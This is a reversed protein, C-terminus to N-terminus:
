AGTPRFALSANAALYVPRQTSLGKRSLALYTAVFSNRRGEDSPWALYASLFVSMDHWRAENASLRKRYLEICKEHAQAIALSVEPLNMTRMAFIEASGTQPRM